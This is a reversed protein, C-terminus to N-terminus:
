FRTSSKWQLEEIEEDISEFRYMIILFACLLVAKYEVIYGLFWAVGTALFALIILFKM